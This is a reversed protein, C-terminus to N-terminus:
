GSKEPVEAGRGRPVDWSIGGLGFFKPPLEPPLKRRASATGSALSGGAPKRQPDEQLSDGAHVVLGVLLRREATALKLVSGALRAVLLNTFPRTISEHPHVLFKATGDLARDCPALFV